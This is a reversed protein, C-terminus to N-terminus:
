PTRENQTRRNLRDYEENVLVRLATSLALHRSEAIAELKAKEKDNLRTPIQKRASPAILNINDM